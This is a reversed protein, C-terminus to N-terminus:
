YGTIGFWDTSVAVTEGTVLDTVFVTSVYAGNAPCGMYCVEVDYPYAAHQTFSSDYLCYTIAYQGSGGTITPKFVLFGRADGSIVANPKEVTLPAYYGTINYWGANVWISEGTVNDTVIVNATYLGNAPCNMYFVDGDYPCAGQLTFNSDYLYYAYSYSGSGGNVVPKNVTFGKRNSYLEGTPNEATLPAYYGTIAVWETAVSQSEGTVNDTVIVIAVYAGNAPCNMYFINDDYPSAGYLNFDSDYLYYTYTCNGSGGTVTPKIVAFGCRNTYVSIAPTQVALPAYYGTVNYWGANVQASEGTVNDTVVVNATYLGNAPCNMYFVDGDYPSAGYLNFSSDYLYYTYTYNGSGSTVVPKNVTFGKRDAYLSGTPAEVALPVYGEINFWDTTVNASEGTVNDYVSVVAIFAGNSPCNMYFIDGDYPSAGYLNFGVDYLYYTVTHNGSGGSIGPKYVVFGRNNNYLKAQPKQVVLPKYDSITFWIPNSAKSVEIWEDRNEDYYEYELTARLSYTGSQSVTIYTTSHRGNNYTSNKFSGTQVEKGNIDSISYRLNHYEDADDIIDPYEVWIGKGNSRYGWVLDSIQVERDPVSGIKVRLPESLDSEVGAYVKTVWYTYYGPALNADVYGSADGALTAILTRTGNGVQRYVLYQDMVYTNEWNLLVMTDTQSKLAFNSVTGMVIRVSIIKTWDSNYRGTNDLARVQFEYTSGFEINDLTVNRNTTICSDWDTTGAMRWRLEYRSAGTVSQWNVYAGKWKYENGISIRDAGAFLYGPTDLM